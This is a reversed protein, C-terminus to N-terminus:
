PLLRRLLEPSARFNTRALRALAAPLDVHGSRAGVALIALIGMLPLGLDRAVNRAARDDLLVSDPKLAMGLAIVEQEGRHLRPTVPLTGTDPAEAFRLWAPRAELWSTVAQPTGPHTLESAVAPPIWVQDFLAPLLDAEGILALYSLPSTDSVAIM